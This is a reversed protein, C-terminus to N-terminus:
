VTNSNCLVDIIYECSLAHSVSLNSVRFITKVAHHRVRRLSHKLNCNNNSPPVDETPWGPCSTTAQVTRRSIVNPLNKIQILKKSMNIKKFTVSTWNEHYYTKMVRNNSHTVKKSITDQPALFFNIDASYRQKFKQPLITEDIDCVIM